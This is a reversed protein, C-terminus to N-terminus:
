SLKALKKVLTTLRNSQMKTLSIETQAPRMEPCLFRPLDYQKVLMSQLLTPSYCQSTNALDSQTNESQKQASKMQQQLSLQSLKVSSNQLDFDVRNVKQNPGKTATTQKSM